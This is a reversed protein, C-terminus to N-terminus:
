DVAVLGFAYGDDERYLGKQSLSSLVGSWAKGYIGCYASANDLYVSKWEKGQFEEESGETSVRLAELAKIETETLNIM